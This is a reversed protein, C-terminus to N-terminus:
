EIGAPLPRRKARYIIVFALFSPNAMRSQLSPQQLLFSPLNPKSHLGFPSLTPLLNSPCKKHFFSSFLFPLTHVREIPFSPNQKAMKNSFLFPPDHAEQRILYGLTKSHLPPKFNQSALKFFFLPPSKNPVDRFDGNHNNKKTCKTYNVQKEFNINGNYNHRQCKEYISSQKNSSIQLRGENKFM